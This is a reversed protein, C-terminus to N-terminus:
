SVCYESQVFGGPLVRTAVHRLNTDTPFPGFLPIGEGLLIPATTLVLRDILQESLFSRITRGGDVYLREFGRDALADVVERVSGSLTQM